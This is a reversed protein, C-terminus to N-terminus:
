YRAMLYNLYTSDAGCTEALPRLIEHYSLAKFRLEQGVATAFRRIEDRHAISETGPWDYYVYYLSFNSDLRTALGLAHKLLQPADLYRFQMEGGFIGAALKQSEPL